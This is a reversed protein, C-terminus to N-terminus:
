VWRAFRRKLVAIQNREAWAALATMAQDENDHFSFCLQPPVIRTGHLKIGILPNFYGQIM